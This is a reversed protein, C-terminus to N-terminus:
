ILFYNKQLKKKFKELKKNWNKEKERKQMFFIRKSVFAFFNRACSKIFRHTTHLVFIKKTHAKAQLFVLPCSEKINEQKKDSINKAHKM